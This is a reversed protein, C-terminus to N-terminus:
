PPIYKYTNAFTSSIHVVICMGFTVLWQPSSGAIMEERVPLVTASLITCCSCGIGQIDGRELKDVSSMHSVSCSSLEECCCFHRITKKIFATFYDRLEPIFAVQIIPHIVTFSILSNFIVFHWWVSFDRDVVALLSRLIVPIWTLFNTLLIASFVKILQLQKRNKTQRVKAKLSATFQLKNNSRSRIFYIRRIHKQVICLIWVNTFFILFVPLTSVLAVLMVYYFNPALRTGSGFRITCTAVMNQFIVDGFGFLPLASLVLNLIWLSVVAIVTRKTTVYYSYKLPFKIFMLRDLSLAALSHLSCSAFLVLCIGFQCVYCRIKDDLGFIFEGAFGAVVTFPLVLVIMLLDSIALSLLLIYTPKSYLRQLLIGLIILSNSPLGVLIFFLSLVSTALAADKHQGTLWYELTVQDDSYGTRDSCSFSETVNMM